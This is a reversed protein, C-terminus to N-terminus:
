SNFRSIEKIRGTNQFHLKGALALVGEGHKGVLEAGARDAEWGSGSPLRVSYSESLGELESLYCDRALISAAAVAPDSEAGPYVELKYDGDPLHPSLREQACFRDVVVRQPACGSAILEGIATGHMQALLDLSNRGEAKMRSLVRNYSEAKAHQLAWRGEARERVDAAVERLRSNALMKSDVVGSRRLLRATKGDCCFACVVLGGFYDGKGAEDSGAWVGEPVPREALEDILGLLEECGGAPVVSFGKKRSYYLNIRCTDESRRISYQLGNPLERRSEVSLGEEEISRLFREAHLELIESTM